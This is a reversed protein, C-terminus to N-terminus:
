EIATQAYVEDLSVQTGGLGFTGEEVISTRWSTDPQRSDIEIRRSNTHVVPYCVVSGLSRYAARKEILDYSKTRASPVECVVAPQQVITMQGEIGDCVVGADGYYVTTSTIEIKVAPGFVRCPAPFGRRLAIQINLSITDHDLMEGAVEVVFGHHLEFRDSQRAEWALYESRELQPVVPDRM